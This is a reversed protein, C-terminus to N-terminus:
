TKWLLVTLVFRENYFYITKVLSEINILCLKNVMESPPLVIEVSARPYELTIALLIPGIKMLYLFRAKNSLGSRTAM